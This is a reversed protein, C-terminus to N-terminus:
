FQQMQQKLNNMMEKFEDSETLKHEEVGKQIQNEDVGHENFIKDMEMTKEVELILPVQQPPIKGQMAAVNLGKTVEFKKTELRKVFNLADERSLTAKADATNEANLESM